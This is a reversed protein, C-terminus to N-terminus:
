PKHALAAWVPRVMFMMARRRSNARPCTQEHRIQSRSPPYSRVNPGRRPARGPEPQERLAQRLRPDGGRRSVIGHSLCTTSGAREGSRRVIESERAPRTELRRWRRLTEVSRGAQRARACLGHPPGELLRKVAEAKFEATFRRRTRREAM